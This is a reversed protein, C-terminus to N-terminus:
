KKGGEQLVPKILTQLSDNGDAGAGADLEHMIAELDLVVSDMSGQTAITTTATPAAAVAAAAHPAAQM